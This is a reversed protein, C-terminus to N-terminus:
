QCHEGKRPVLQLRYFLTLLSGIWVNPHSSSTSSPLGAISLHPASKQQRTYESVCQSKHRRQKGVFGATIRRIFQLTNLFNVTGGVFWVGPCFKRNDNFPSAYVLCSSSLLCRFINSFDIPPWAFEPFQSGLSSEQARWQRGRSVFVTNTKRILVLPHPPIVSNPSEFYCSPRHDLAVEEDRQKSEKDPFHKLLNAYITGQHPSVNVERSRSDRGQYKTRQSPHAITFALSQPHKGFLKLERYLWKRSLCPILHAGNSHQSRISASPSSIFLFQLNSTITPNEQLKLFYM